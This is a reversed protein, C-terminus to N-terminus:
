HWFVTHDNSNKEVTTAISTHMLTKGLLVYHDNRKVGKMAVYLDKYIKITDGETKCSYGLEDLVGLSILNNQLDSVHRVASLTKVTGDDM